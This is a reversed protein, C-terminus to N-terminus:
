DDDDDLACAARANACARCKCFSCHESISSPNCWSECTEYDTDGLENSHCEREDGTSACGIRRGCGQCKCWVCHASSSCWSECAAESIDGAQDSHCPTGVRTPPPMPPTPPWPPTPPTAQMAWGQRLLRLTTEDTDYLGYWGQPEHPPDGLLADGARWYGAHVRPRGTGSWAWPMIGSVDLRAAHRVLASFYADRHLTAAHPDHSQMDRALGFEEIIMPKDLTRARAAHDEIYPLAHRLASEFREKGSADGWDWNQAWVHITIVDIEALAHTEDFGVNIYSEFPTTGESGVAVLHRPSLRKIRAATQQVWQMYAQRYRGREAEPAVARPENCLEWGLITGDDRYALGSLANTRSVVRRLAEDALAVARPTSYFASAWEQYVNWDANTNRPHLHAPLADWYGTLHSSPYPIDRWSGARAWVLYMAFGGSWSWMNNLCLLARM